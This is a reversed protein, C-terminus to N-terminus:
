TAGGAGDLVAPAASATKKKLCFVAYSISVHSSNLRTSKRDGTHQLQAPLTAPAVGLPGTDFTSRAQVLVGLRRSSRFLTTYPFLSSRPPRPLSSISSPLLRLLSRALALLYAPPRHPAVIVRQP